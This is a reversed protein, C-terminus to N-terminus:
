SVARRIRDGERVLMLHCQESFLEAFHAASAAIGVVLKIKGLWLDDLKETALCM